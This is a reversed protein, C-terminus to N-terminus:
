ADRSNKEDTKKSKLIYNWLCLGALLYGSTLGPIIDFIFMHWSDSVDPALGHADGKSYWLIMSSFTTMLWAAFLCFCLGTLKRRLKKADMSHHRVTLTDFKQSRDYLGIGELSDEEGLSMGEAGSWLRYVTDYDDLLMTRIPYNM